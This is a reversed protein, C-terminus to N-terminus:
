SETGKKCSRSRRPKPNLSSPIPTLQPGKRAAGQAVSCSWPDPTLSLSTAGPTPLNPCPLLFPSAGFSSSPRGFSFSSTGFPKPMTSSLFSIPLYFLIVKDFFLKKDRAVREPREKPIQLKGRGGKAKHAKELEKIMKARAKDLEKLAIEEAEAKLAKERAKIADENAQEQRLFAM